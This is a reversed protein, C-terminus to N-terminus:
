GWGFFAVVADRKPAAAPPEAAIPAPHEIPPTESLADALAQPDVPKYFVPTGNLYAQYETLDYGTIFITRLMPQEQQLSERLNFGDMGNLVVETILVDPPNGQSLTLAQQGDVFPIVEHGTLDRLSQALAGASDAQDDVVLIKM